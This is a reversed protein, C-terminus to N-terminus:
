HLRWDYSVSEVARAAPRVHTTAAWRVDVAAPYSDARLPGADVLTTEIPELGM